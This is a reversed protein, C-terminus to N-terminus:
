IQKDSSPTQVEYSVLTSLAVVELAGLTGQIGTPNRGVLGKSDDRVSKWGNFHEETDWGIAVTQILVYTTAANAGVTMEVAKYKVPIYNSDSSKKVTLNTNM